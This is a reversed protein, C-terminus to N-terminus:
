GRFRSCQAGARFDPREAAQAKEAFRPRTSRSRRMLEILAGQTRTGYATREKWRSLGACRPIPRCTWRVGASPAPMLYTSLKVIHMEGRQNKSLISLRRTKCIWDLPRCIPLCSYKVPMPSARCGIRLDATCRKNYYLTILYNHRIERVYDLARHLYMNIVTRNPGAAAMRPRSSQPRPPM